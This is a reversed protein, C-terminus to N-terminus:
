PVIGVVPYTLLYIWLCSGRHFRRHGITMAGKFDLNLHTKSRPISIFDSFTLSDCPYSKELSGHLHKEEEFVQMFPNGLLPM